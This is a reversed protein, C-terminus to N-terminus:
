VPTAIQGVISASIGATLSLLAYYDGPWYFTVPVIGLVGVTGAVIASQAPTATPGVGLEVSGGTNATVNLFVTTVCDYGPGSGGAGSSNLAATGLTITPTSSPPPATTIEGTAESILLLQVSTSHNFLRLYDNAAVVMEIDGQAAVQSSGPGYVGAGGAATMFIQGTSIVTLTGGNNTGYFIGTAPVTPGVIEAVGPSPNTLILNAGILLESTVPVTVTGGTNTTELDTGSSGGGVLPGPFWTIDASAGAALDQGLPYEGVVTGGGGPAVVQLVPVYAGTAGSGDFSAEISKILIEQGGPITYGAPTAQVQSALIAVDAM